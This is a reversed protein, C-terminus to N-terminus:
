KFFLSLTLIVIQKRLGTLVSDMNHGQTYFSFIYRWQIHMKQRLLFFGKLWIFSLIATDNM